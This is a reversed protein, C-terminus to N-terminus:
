ACPRWTRTGGLLQDWQPATVAQTATRVDVSLSALVAGRLPERTRALEAASVTFTVTAGEVRAPTALVVVSQGIGASPDSYVMTTTPAEGPRVGYELWLIHLRRTSAKVRYLVATGGPPGALGITATFGACRGRPALTLARVDYAAMSAPTTVGEPVHDDHVLNQNNAANADGAPDGIVLTNSAGAGTALCLLAVIAGTRIM